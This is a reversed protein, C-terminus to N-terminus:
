FEYGFGFLGHLSLNTVEAEGEAIPVQAASCAVQGEINFYIHKILQYNKGIGLLGVPGTIRYGSGLIGGSSLHKQHRVESQAHPLIIGAGILFYFKRLEFIKNLTLMNYGHTIEFHQVDVPLNELYLKHHIFQIQWDKKFTSFGFKVAYYYSKDFPRTSYEAKTSITPQDKQKIILPCRLNEAAGSFIEVYYNRQAYLNESGNISILFLLWFFMTCCRNFM